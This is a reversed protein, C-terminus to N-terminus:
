GSAGSFQTSLAFNRRKASAVPVKSLAKWINVSIGKSYFRNDEDTKRTFAKFRIGVFSFGQNSALFLKLNLWAWVRIARSSPIFGRFVLTAQWRPDSSM